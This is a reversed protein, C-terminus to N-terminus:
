FPSAKSGFILTFWLALGRHQQIQTEGISLPEVQALLQKRILSDQWQVLSPYSDFRLIIAYQPKKPNSPRMVTIGQFGPFQSAAYSMKEQWAEFEAEFGVKVQRSIIATVPESM